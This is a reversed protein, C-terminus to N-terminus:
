LTPNAIKFVVAVALFLMLDAVLVLGVAALVRLGWGANRMWCGSLWFFFSGLIVQLVVPGFYFLEDLIGPEGLDPFLDM